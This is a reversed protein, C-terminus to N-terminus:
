AHLSVLMKLWKQCRSTRVASPPTAPLLARSLRAYAAAADQRGAEFGAQPQVTVVEPQKRVLRVVDAVVGRTRELSSAPDTQLSIIFSGSDMRPLAEMGQHRPLAVGLASALVAAGIVALRRRLGITLAALYARRVLAMAATFPWLVRGLAADIREGGGTWLSLTPVVVLAVLASSVFAILLTAALPGFTKGIFGARFHHCRASIRVWESRNFIPGEIQYFLGHALRDVGALQSGAEIM